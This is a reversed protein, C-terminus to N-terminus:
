FFSLYTKSVLQLKGIGVGGGGGLEGLCGDGLGQVKGAIACVHLHSSIYATLSDKQHGSSTPYAMQAFSLIKGGLCGACLSYTLETTSAAM